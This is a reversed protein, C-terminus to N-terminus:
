NGLGQESARKLAELEAKHDAVFQTEAAVKADYQATRYGTKQRCDLDALAMKVEKDALARYEDSSPSGTVSSASSAISAEADRQATFGLYGSDAMCAVWSADAQAMGIGHGTGDDGLKAQLETIAAFLPAFEASADLVNQPNHLDWQHAAWGECGKLRWGDPSGNGQNPDAMLANMDGHLTTMYADREAGPLANVYQGNPDVYNSRQPSTDPPQNLIGYGYLEVWHPDDLPYGGVFITWRNPDPVYDFGADKMCVAIYDEQKTYRQRERALTEEPTVYTGYAANLYEELPTNRFVGDPDATV